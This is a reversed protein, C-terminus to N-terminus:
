SIINEGARGLHLKSMLLPPEDLAYIIDRPTKDTNIVQYGIANKWKPVPTAVVFNNFNTMALKM